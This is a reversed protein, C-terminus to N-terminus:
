SKRGDWWARKRDWCEGDCDPEHTIGLCVPFSERDRLRKEIKPLEARVDAAIEQILREWLSM